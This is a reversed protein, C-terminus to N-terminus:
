VSVQVHHEVKVAVDTAFIETCAEVLKAGETAFCENRQDAKCCQGCMALFKESITKVQEDTIKPHTRVLHMLFTQKKAQLDAESPTCFEDNFNFSEATVPAPVYTEDVTLAAFCPTTFSLSDKCCHALKENEFPTKQNQCIQAFVMGLGGESCPMQQDEPLKCCKQGINTLTKTIYLLFADSSRPLIGTYRVIMINQFHYPGLKELAGCTTKLKTKSAEIEHRLTEEEKAICENHAEGACCTKYAKELGSAIRLNLEASHEPHIKAYDCLFRGMFADGEEKFRKCVEPDDFYYRVEPSLDAPKEDNPLRVICESRELVPKECCKKKECTQTTLKMREAMCAMMDGGCCTQHLHVIGDTLRQVNEFSAHPFKSCAHAAKSARLARENFNQLIYCNHKQVACVHEVEEKHAPMKESLCQGVTAEDKCCHSVIGDFHLTFSLIAPPYMTTHSSAVKHIYHGLFEDRNEAHDKCIQEPSPKVYETREKPDTSKHEIFCKHREPDEKKCCGEHFPYKEPNEPTKCIENLIITMVSKGCDGHKAGRSCLDAIDMVNRVRQVQEHHPCKSLMQSFLAMALAKAHEVGILGVISEMSLNPDEAHGDEHHRKQLIRSETCSLVIVISILTAWKM